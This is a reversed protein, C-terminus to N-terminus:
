VSASLNLSSRISSLNIAVATTTIKPLFPVAEPFVNLVNKYTRINFLAIEIEKKLREYEKRKDDVADSLTLVKKAFDDNVKISYTDGYPLSEKLTINHKSLGVGVVNCYSIISFYRRNKKFMAYMGDPLQRKYEETVIEALEMAIKEFEDKRAKLMQTAVDKAIEKTIRSM